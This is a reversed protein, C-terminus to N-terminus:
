RLPSARPFCQVMRDPLFRQHEESYLQRQIERFLYKNELLKLFIDQTGQRQGTPGDRDINSVQKGIPGHRAGPLQTKAQTKWLKISSSAWAAPRALSSPSRVMSVFSNM